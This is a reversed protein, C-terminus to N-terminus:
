AHREPILAQGHPKVASAALDTRGRGVEALDARRGLGDLVGHRTVCYAGARCGYDIARDIPDGAALRTVLGATFADGAGTTDVAGVPYADFSRIGAASAWLAGREGLTVVINQVGFDLLKSALVEIAADAIGLWACLTRLEGENPTLFDLLALLEPQLPRAPAPNLITQKGAAHAWTFVGAALETTCELQM